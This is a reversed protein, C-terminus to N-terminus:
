PMKGLAGKQWKEDKGIKPLPRMIDPLQMEAQRGLLFLTSNITTWSMGSVRDFDHAHALVLAKSDVM